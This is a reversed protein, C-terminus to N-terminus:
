RDRLDFDDNHQPGCFGYRKIRGGECHRELASASQWVIPKRWGRSVRRRGLPSNMM